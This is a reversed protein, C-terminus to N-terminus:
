QKTWLHGVAMKSIGESEKLQKELSQITSEQHRILALDQQAEKRAEILTEMVKKHEQAAIQLQEEHLKKLEKVEETLQLIKLLFAQVGQNIAGVEQIQARSLRLQLAGLHQSMQYLQSELQEKKSQMSRYSTDKSALSGQLDQIQAELTRMQRQANELQSQHLARAEALQREAQAKEQGTIEQLQAAKQLQLKFSKQQADAQRNLTEQNRRLETISAELAAVQKQTTQAAQTAAELAAAKEDITAQLAAQDQGQRERLAALELRAQDLAQRTPTLEEQLARLQQQLQAREQDTKEKLARLQDQTQQLTAAAERKSSALDAQARRFLDEKEEISSQLAAMQEELSRAQKEQDVNMSRLEELEHQLEQLECEADALKSEQQSFTNEYTERQTELAAQTQDVQEELQTVSRQLTQYEEDDFCPDRFSAESASLRPFEQVSRSPALSPSFHTRTHHTRRIRNLVEKILSDVEKQLAPDLQEAPADNKSLMWAGSDKTLTRNERRDTKLTFTIKQRTFEAKFKKTGKYGLHKQVITKVRASIDHDGGHNLQGIQARDLDALPSRDPSYSCRKITSM